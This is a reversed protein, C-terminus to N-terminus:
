TAKISPVLNGTCMQRSVVRSNAQVRFYDYQHYSILCRRHSVTSLGALGEARQWGRQRHDRQGPGQDVHPAWWGPGWAGEDWVRGWARQRGRCPLPRLSVEKLLSLCVDPCPPEKGLPSEAEHRECGFTGGEVCKPSRRRGDM